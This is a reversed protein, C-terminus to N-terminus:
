KNAKKYFSPYAQRTEDKEKMKMERRENNKKFGTWKYILRKIFQHALPHKNPSSDFNISRM